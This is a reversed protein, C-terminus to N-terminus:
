TRPVLPEWIRCTTVLVNINQVQGIHMFERQALCRGLKNCHMCLSEDHRMGDTKPNQWITLGHKHIQIPTEM